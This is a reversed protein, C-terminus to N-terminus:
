PWRQFGAREFDSDFTFAFRIQEKRMLVFSLCDVFSIKQDAYKAFLPIAQLDEEPGPRLVTLVQSSLIHRAREAAFAHGIRRGLLSFTESLVVNSTFCRRRSEELARWGKLAAAHDQDADHYRAVFAGTDIFIM